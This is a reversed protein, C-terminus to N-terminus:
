SINLFGRNRLSDAQNRTYRYIIDGKKDFEFDWPSILVVDGDRVWHRRMMKGRVRCVRINGDQCQILMRGSGLNKRVIGLVDFKNPMLMNKKLHSESKVLKKGM